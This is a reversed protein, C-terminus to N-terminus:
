LLDLDIIKLNGILRLEELGQENIVELKKLFDIVDLQRKKEALMFFNHEILLVLNNNNALDNRELIYMDVTDRAYIAVDIVDNIDKNKIFQLTSLIATCADLAFSAYIADFDETNPTISDVKSIYQNIDYKINEALLNSYLDSIISKLQEADGFNYKVSFCKYNPLLKECILLSFVINKDDSLGSLKEAILKRYLDM